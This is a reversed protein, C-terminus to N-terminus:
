EVGVNSFRILFLLYDKIERFYFTNGNVWWRMDTQDTPLRDQCWGAMKNRDHVTILDFRKLYVM